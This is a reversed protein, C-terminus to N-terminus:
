KWLKMESRQAVVICAEEFQKPGIGAEIGDAVKGHATRERFHKIGEVPGIL